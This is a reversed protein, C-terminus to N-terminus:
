IQLGRTFLSLATSASCNSIPMIHVCEVRYQNLFKVFLEMEELSFFSAGMCLPLRDGNLEIVKEAFRQRKAFPLAMDEGGTGLVWLGGIPHASLFDLLRELGSFDLQEDEGIPTPLVPIIGSVTM